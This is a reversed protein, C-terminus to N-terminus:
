PAVGMRGFPARGPAPEGEGPPPSAASEEGRPVVTGGRQSVVVMRPDPYPQEVLLDWPVGDRWFQGGITTVRKGRSAIVMTVVDSASLAPVGGATTLVDGDLLGIGLGSVGSLRLGAPRGGEAPVPLGRPRVGHRALRLVTEGSVFLGRRSHGGARTGGRRRTRLSGPGREERVASAEAAAGLAPEVHDPELDCRPPEPVVPPSVVAFASALREGVHDGLRDALLGGLLIAVITAVALGVIVAAHGFRMPFWFLVM